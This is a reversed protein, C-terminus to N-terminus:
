LGMDAPVADRTAFPAPLHRYPLPLGTVSLRLLIRRHGPEDSYGIPVASHISSLCDWLLIDGTGAKVQTRFRDQTAHTKLETLLAEGDAAAMGEIGFSTGAIGYLARRGTVPHTLVLPHATIQQGRADDMTAAYAFSDQTVQKEYGFRKGGSMRHLVRLGDLRERTAGPLADYAAVLDAFLTEGGDDPAELAHLMTISVPIIDYTGDTHWFAAGDRLPAPTSAANGIRILEPFDDHRHDPHPFRIPDGMQAGLRAYDARSLHDQGRIRLFRHRYIADALQGVQDDTLRQALDANVVDAGFGGPLAEITLM